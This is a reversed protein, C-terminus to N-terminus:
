GLVEQCKAYLAKREKLGNDGGNIRRSCTVIDNAWRELNKSKWYWCASEIGGQITHLYETAEELTKGIADAFAQHNDRGTLQICGAGRFRWGDGSEEDGNGLRSAYVKNAIVEPKRAYIQATEANFRYPWTNLLATASYNLNESLRTFGQSEHGCQALFMALSNVGYQPCFTNIADAWQEPNDANPFLKHFQEASIM